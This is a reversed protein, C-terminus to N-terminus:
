EATRRCVSGGVVAAEDCSVRWAQLEQEAKAREQELGNHLEERIRKRLAEEDVSRPEISQPRLLWRPRPWQPPPPAVLKCTRHILGHPGWGLVPTGCPVGLGPESVTLLAEKLSDPDGSGRHFAAM